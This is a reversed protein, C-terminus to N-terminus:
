KSPRHWNINHFGINANTYSVLTEVVIGNPDYKVMLQWWDSNSNKRTFLDYGKLDRMDNVKEKVTSLVDLRSDGLTILRWEDPMPPRRFLFYGAALLGCFTVVAIISTRRKM